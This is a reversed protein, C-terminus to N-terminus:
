CCNVYSELKFNVTMSAAEFESKESNTSVFYMVPDGHIALNSKPSPKTASWMQSLHTICYVCDHETGPTGLM